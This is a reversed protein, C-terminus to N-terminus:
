LEPAVLQHGRKYVIGCNPTSTRRSSSGGSGTNQLGLCIRCKVGAMKGMWETQGTGAFTLCEWLMSTGSGYVISM